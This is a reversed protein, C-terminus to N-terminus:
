ELRRWPMKKFYQIALDFYKDVSENTGGLYEAEARQLNWIVSTIRAETELKKGGGSGSAFTV